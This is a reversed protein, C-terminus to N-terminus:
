MPHGSSVHPQSGAAVTAASRTTRLQCGSTMKLLEYGYVAWKTASATFRRVPTGQTASKRSSHALLANTVPWGLRAVRRLTAPSRATVPRAAFVTTTASQNRRLPAGGACGM